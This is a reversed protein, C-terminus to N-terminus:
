HPMQVLGSLAFYGGTGLAALWASALLNILMRRPYNDGSDTSHQLRKSAPKAQRGATPRAPPAIRRPEFRIINAGVDAPRLAATGANRFPSRRSTAAIPQFALVTSGLRASKPWHNAWATRKHKLGQMIGDWISLAAPVM